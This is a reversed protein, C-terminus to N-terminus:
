LTVSWQVVPYAAKWGKRPGLPAAQSLDIRLLDGGRRAQAQMLLAESELTVANAVLRVGSLNTELWALLPESLGGGIFVVDPRDLRDLVDPARGEIVQLRDQGLATANDRIRAARDARLEVTQASLSADCMLWEIAISGSGGGIDWLHEGARPALASLTLARVPRKTMVGDSDFLTDDRGTALTMGQGVPELGVVVPHGVDDPLADARAQRIRERPGGLAELIHVESAGFGVDCLYRGLDGVAAGDRLTVIIRRGEALQPRLRSLPAAHLGLCLVSELGWGLRSGALSLSSLGPLARWEGPSLRRALVAGAGFWFPDGSALAVVQRGALALLDEVGRAFPVPWERLEAKIGLDGASLLGMHRSPGMIIEAQQLARRAAPSLGEPGDEGLGIVTLWPDRRPSTNRPDSM